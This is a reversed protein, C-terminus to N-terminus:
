SKVYKMFYDEVKKFCKNLEYNELVFKRGAKGMQRRREIDFYLEAIANALLQENKRPVVLSTVGPQTAEMLGEVDSIIVPVECAEAEVASVGFSESNSYVIGLDINAWEKAVQEQPIFGLWEVIDNINLMNALEKYELEKSGKGAIRLKVPIESYEKKVIAVAKLLYDIGYKPTLAKITGVIFEKNEKRNRPVFLDMDVGFPTIEIQKNTYNQAEKAMAKSTSFIHDTNNLSYKLMAKHLFSKKPFDYIDSGWVSLVYNKIGSLAVVTGYSTAYHVNIIDPEIQNVTKRIQSACLLYKLKKGDTEQANVGTDIWHVTVGQIIANIFSIVHIEYGQKLFWNCWKQTHYNNAPAIFCIKM